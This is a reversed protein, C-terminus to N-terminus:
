NPRIGDYELEIDLLKASLDDISGIDGEEDTLYSEIPLPTIGREKLCQKYHEYWTEKLENDKEYIDVIGKLCKLRRKMASYKKEIYDLQKKTDLIKLKKQILLDIPSVIDNQLKSELKLKEVRKQIEQRERTIQEKQKEENELIVANDVLVITERSKIQDQPLVEYWIGGEAIVIHFYTDNEALEKAFDIARSKSSEHGRIKIFHTDKVYMFSLLYYPGGISPQQLSVFRVPYESDNNATCDHVREKIFSNKQEDTLSKDCVPHHYKKLEDEM